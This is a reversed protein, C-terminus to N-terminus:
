NHWILHLIRCVEDDEAAEAEAAAELQKVIPPVPQAPPKDADVDVTAANVTEAPRTPEVPEAPEAPGVPKTLPIATLPSSKVTEIPRVSEVSEVSEVTEPKPRARPQVYKVPGRYGRKLSLPLPIGHGKDAPHTGPAPPPPHHPAADILRDLATLSGAPSSHATATAAAEARQIAAARALVRLAASLMTYAHATLSKSKSEPSAPFDAGPLKRAASYINAGETQSGGGGLIGGRRGGRRM